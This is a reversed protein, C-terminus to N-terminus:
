LGSDTRTLLHTTALHDLQQRLYATYRSNEASTLHVGDNTQYKDVPVGITPYQSAPFRNRLQQRILCTLPHNQIRTDVPTEFFIVNVGKRRFTEVYKWAVEVHAKITSDSPRYSM